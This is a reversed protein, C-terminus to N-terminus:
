LLNCNEIGSSFPSLSGANMRERDGEGAFQLKCQAIRKGEEDEIACAFRLHWGLGGDLASRGAWVEINVDRSAWVCVCLYFSLCVCFLIMVLASLACRCLFQFLNTIRSRSTCEVRSLLRMQICLDQSIPFLLQSQLHNCYLLCTFQLILCM